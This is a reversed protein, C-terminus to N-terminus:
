ITFEFEDDIAQPGVVRLTHDGSSIKSNSIYLTTIESPQISNDEFSYYTKEIIEGDIFITFTDTTTALKKGGINKLYFRYYGSINPINDPDNIIKFDTDLEEQIRDCKETLSTTINFTVATLIGSVAGAVIVAAIFFIVHTGTLSFGM